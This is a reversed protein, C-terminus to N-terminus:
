AQKKIKGAQGAPVVPLCGKTAMYGSYERGFLGKLPLIESYKHGIKLRTPKKAVCASDGSMKVRINYDPDLPCKPASCGEFSPCEHYPQKM